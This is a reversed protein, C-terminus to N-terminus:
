QSTGAGYEPKTQEIRCEGNRRKVLLRDVHIRRKELELEIKTLEMFESIRM